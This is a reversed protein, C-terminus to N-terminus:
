SCSSPPPSLDTINLVKWEHFVLGQEELFIEFSEIDGIFKCILYGSEFIHFTRMISPFNFHLWMFLASQIEFYLIDTNVHVNCYKM